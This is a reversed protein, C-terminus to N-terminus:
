FRDARWVYPRRAPFLVKLLDSQATPLWRRDRGLFATGTDVGTVLRLLDRRSLAVGYRARGPLVAVGGHHCQIRWPTGDVVLCLAIRDERLPSRQVLAEWEATLSEFTEGLNLLALYGAPLVTEGLLVGPGLARLGNAVDHTPPLLFHLTHCSREWADQAVEGLLASVDEASRCAAESVEFVGNGDEALYYGALQGVDDVLVRARQWLDWRNTYAAATRVLTGAVPQDGATHLRQMAGIDGPKSQRARHVPAAQDRLACTDAKFVHEEFTPVFSQPALFADATFLAAVHCQKAGLVTCAYEALPRLATHHARAAALWGIGGLKLRAEGLRMTEMQIRLAGAIELGRLAIHTQNKRDFPNGECVRERWAVAARHDPQAADAMLRNALRIEEESRAARVEYSCV